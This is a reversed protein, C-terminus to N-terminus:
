ADLGSWLARQWATVLDARRGPHEPLALPVGRLDILLGALGGSVEVAFRKGRKGLVVPDAFSVVAEGVEGPPLDVLELGGAVLPMTSEGAGIRVVVEGRARRGAAVAPMIVTGLPLVIDDLLDAVVGAREAEDEIAGLPGLLRAADLGLSRAGPDRLADALALGVAPAPVVSWAGGSALILDPGGGRWTWPAATALRSVAARAAALRLVAGDGTAGGWPDDRLEVLRDALRHRDTGDRLWTGVGEITVEDLDAPVLAGTELMAAQTRPPGGSGGPHARAILGGGAGVDVLLVRRDLVAALTALGRVAAVRGDNPETRVESLLSRLAEGAEGSAAAPALITPAVQDTRGPVGPALDGMAGAFVTILEGRRAVAAGVLAALEGLASREDSAAPEDSGVLVASVDRRTLRTVIERVDVSALDAGRARWGAATAAAVLLDRGRPTAALAVVVPPRVNRVALRDADLIERSRSEWAAGAAAVHEALLEVASQVGLRAPVTLSAALRWRGASRVIASTAISATGEDVTVFPADSLSM